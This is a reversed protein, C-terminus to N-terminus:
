PALNARTPLTKRQALNHLLYSTKQHTPNDPQHIQPLYYHDNRIKQLKSNSAEPAVRRIVGRRQAILLVSCNALRGLKVLVAVVGALALILGIITLFLASLTQQQAESRLTELAETTLNNFIHGVDLNDKDM